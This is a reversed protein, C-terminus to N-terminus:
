NYNITFVSLQCLTGGSSAARRQEKVYNKPSEGVLHLNRGFGAVWEKKFRGSAYPSPM